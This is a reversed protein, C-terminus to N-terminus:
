RGWHDYFRMEHCRHLNTRDEFRFSLQIFPLQDIEKGILFCLWEDFCVVPYHRDYPLGYLWLIREM